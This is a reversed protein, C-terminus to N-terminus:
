RLVQLRTLAQAADFAIGFVRCPAGADLGYRESTVAYQDGIAPQHIEDTVDLTLVQRGPAWLALLREAEAQADAEDRFFGAVPPRVGVYDQAMRHIAQRDTDFAVAVRAAVRIFALRAAPINAADLQINQPTWNIGWTVGIRWVCPAVEEPLPAMGMDLLATEDITDSAADPAELRDVTFLGAATEGLFAGIGALLEAIAAGAAVPERVFYGVPAAQAGSLADFADGDIELPDIGARILMRRAIAASDAAFTGGTKDGEIDCTVDYVPNSGLRFYGEALCTDFTGATVTAALLTAVDPHDSGPTLAVGGDYVAPLDEIPGDHAQYLLEFASVLRPTANQCYGFALPRPLNALDADGDEDDNGSGPYLDSQLAANLLHTKGRVALVVRQRDALRWGLATGAFLLAADAYAAGPSVARVTVPRGDVAYSLVAVDLGGDANALEVESGEAFGVIGGEGPALPLTRSLLLPQLLRHEWATNAPSDDPRSRYPAGAYRLIVDTQVIEDPEPPEGWALDGFEARGSTASGSPPQAEVEILYVREATPATFLATM